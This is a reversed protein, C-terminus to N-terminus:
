SNICSMMLESLSLNLSNRVLQRKWVQWGTMKPDTHRIMRTAANRSQYRTLVGFIPASNTTSIVPVLVHRLVHLHLDLSSSWCTLTIKDSPLASTRLDLGAHRADPAEGSVVPTSQLPACRKRRVDVFILCNRSTVPDPRSSVALMMPIWYLTGESATFRHQQFIERLPSHSHYM